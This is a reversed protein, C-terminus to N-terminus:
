RACPCRYGGLGSGAFAARREQKHIDDIGIDGVRGGEVLTICSARDILQPGLPGRDDDAPPVPARCGRRGRHCASGRQSRLLRIRPAGVIIKRATDSAIREVPEQALAIGLARRHDVGM